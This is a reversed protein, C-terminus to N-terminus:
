NRIKWKNLFYGASENDVDDTLFIYIIIQTIPFRSIFFMKHSTANKTITVYDFDAGFM